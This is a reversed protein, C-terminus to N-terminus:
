RGEYDAIADVLAGHTAKGANSTPIQWRTMGTPTTWELVGGKQSVDFSYYIVEPSGPHATVETGPTRGVWPTSSARGSAFTFVRGGQRIRLQSTGALPPMSEPKSLATVRLAIAVFYGNRPKTAYKWTPQHYYVGVPTIRLPRGHSGMTRTAQGFKLVKPAQVVAAAAASAPTPTTLAAAALLAAAPLVALRHPQM